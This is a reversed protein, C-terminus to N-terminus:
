EGGLLPPEPRQRILRQGEESNLWGTLADGELEEGDLWVRLRGDIDEVRVRRSQNRERWAYASDEGEGRRLVVVRADAEGDEGLLIAHEDRFQGIRAQLRERTDLLEEREDATMPRTEGYRTIEGRELAEDIARLGAEMGRAGARLGIDRAREGHLRALRGAERAREGALRAQVGAERAWESDAHAERARERAEGARERAREVMARIRDRDYAGSRWDFRMDTEVAGPLAALAERLSEMAENLIAEHEDTWSDEADLRFDLVVRGQRGPAAPADAREFMVVRPPQPAEPPAPSAAILLPTAAVAWVLHKM